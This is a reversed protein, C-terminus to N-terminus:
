PTNDKLEYIEGVFEVVTSNKVRDGIRGLQAAEELGDNRGLKYIAQAFRKLAVPGFIVRPGDAEDDQMADVAMKLFDHAALEKTITPHTM